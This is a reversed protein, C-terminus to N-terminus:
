RLPDHMWDAPVNIGPQPCAPCFNALEGPVLVAGTDSQHAHGAWKWKKLWRWLHSMRLLEQYVNPCTALSMPCTQRQLKQFYQYASAKCELNSIRFDDLIAVTFLTNYSSFTTPVLRCYMLDAHVAEASHCGCTILAIRHIGNTHVIWVYHNTLADQRPANNALYGNMYELDSHYEVLSKDSENPLNCMSHYEGPREDSEDAPDHGLLILVEPLPLMEVMPPWTSDLRILLKMQEDRDKDLQIAELLSKQTAISECLLAEKYHPVLIYAGVEWLHAVRFFTGTWCKIHHLPSRAHSHQMCRWCLLALSTCDKCRWVAWNREACVCTGPDLM